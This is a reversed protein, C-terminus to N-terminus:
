IEDSLSRQLESIQKTINNVLISRYNEDDLKQRETPAALIRSNMYKPHTLYHRLVQAFERREAETDLGSILELFATDETKFRSGSRALFVQYDLKQLMKQLLILQSTEQIYAQTICLSDSSWGSITSQIQKSFYSSFLCIESLISPGFESLLQLIITLLGNSWISHLRPSLEHRINGQQIAVSIPSELFVSFLGNDIMKRAVAHVMAMESIFSLTVEAFLPADNSILLYSSYYVNMLSKLTGFENLSSALIKFFSPLPKLERIKTFISLLLLLDQFKDTMNNVVLQKAQSSAVSFSSLIDSLILNVGKSFSLEFFELLFDSCNELFMPYPKALTLIILISRIVPRYHTSKSSKVINELYNIEKSKLVILLKSLFDELKSEPITTSTQHSSYLIYFILEIRLLYIESFLPVDVGKKINLDLFLNCIDIYSPKLPNPSKKIYATLLAGWSKAASIQFSVLQLNIVCKILKERFGNGSKSGVWKEDSAFFQDLLEIEYVYNTQTGGIKLLPSVSFQTLELNPWLSKFEDNINANLQKDYGDVTFFLKVLEPLQEKDLLTTISSISDSSTYLHLAFIEAIRANLRFNNSLKMTEELSDPIGKTSFNELRKVLFDIFALDSSNNRAATWSNYAYSIAELLQSGVSEPYSDLKLVQKKLLSLVSLKTEKTSEYKSSELGTSITGGTVLLISFGDQKGEMVASFFSYFNKLFRYDDIESQLDTLFAKFLLSSHKGGLHALLSPYETPWPARILHTLLKIIQNRASHRVIYIDVLHPLRQFIKSELTSPPLHLLVRISILLNSFDFSKSLWQSYGEFFEESGSYLAESSNLSVLVQVLSTATRVDPSDNSLFDKTIHESAAALVKTIKREAATTPDIGHVNYIITTFLCTLQTGLEFKGRISTYNWYQYSEYVHVFHQVFKSLIESQLRQPFETELSLADRVLKQCLKVLETTIAYEGSPLEMTGLITSIVGAKGYRDLLESRALHSWVLRSFSDLMTNLVTIAHKIVDYDKIQFSHELVKFIISFLDDEVIFFSFSSLIDNLREPSTSTGLIESILSMTSIILERMQKGGDSVTMSSLYQFSANQFVRGLLSWGNYKYLFMLVDNETNSPLIKAKTNEPIPVLSRANAELPVDALTAKKLVILDTSTSDDALDYDLSGLSLEQTYSCFEKLEFHAFEQHVSTLTIMPLLSENLLPAKTKLVFFKKEFQEHVLFKEVFDTPANKLVDRIITSTRLNLPVFYMSLLLFSSLIVCYLTREMFLDAMKAISNLVNETEAYNAFKNILDLIPESGFVHKVFNLNNEPEEELMYSKTYLIFSWYYVLLPPPESNIIIELIAKFNIEDNFFPSETDISSTTTNFGTMLITLISALAEIREKLEGPLRSSKFFSDFYNSEELLQYWRLLTEPEIPRNLSILVLYNLINSIYMMDYSDVFEDLPSVFGTSNFRKLFKQLLDILEVSILSRKRLISKLLSDKIVPFSVHNALLLLTDLICNREHLIKEAAVTKDMEKGGYNSKYLHIMRMAEANSVGLIPSLEATLQKEEVSIKYNYGRLSLQDEIATEDEVNSFTSIHILIDENAKLFSSIRQFTSQNHAKDYEGSRLFACVKSFTLASM